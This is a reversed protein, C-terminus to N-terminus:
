FYDEVTLGFTILLNERNTSTIKNYTLAANISLWKQLKINFNTSLRLIYNDFQSLSPQWFHAGEWSLMNNIVWRHKIRLSNRFTNYNKTNISDIQLEGAEFLIGDSIVLEGNENNILNYGPGIGAQFQNIINLSFSSTYNALGWYYLKRTNKYLDFNFGTIFDNNTLKEGQRGYIYSANSNFSLNKKSMSFYVGNNVVFSRATKTRNIIGTAAYKIHHHISDNFQAKTNLMLGLLFVICFVVCALLRFIM